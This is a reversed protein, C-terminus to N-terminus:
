AYFDLASTSVIYLLISLVLTALSLVAFALLNISFHLMEVLLSLWSPAKRISATWDILQQFKLYVIFNKIHINYIAFKLCKKWRKEIHEVYFKLQPFTAFLLQTFAYCITINIKLNNYTIVIFM